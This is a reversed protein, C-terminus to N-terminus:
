AKKDECVAAVLQPVIKQVDGKVLFDKGGLYRPRGLDIAVIVGQPNHKKYWGLFGRDDRSMGCCIIVGIEQAWENRVEKKFKNGVIFYPTIGTKQHLNDLNETVLACKKYRALALLGTHAVTPSSNHMSKCFKEFALLAPQPDQILKEAILPDQLGLVELLDKMVLVGAASSIGAGTYLVVKKTKILEALAEPQIDQANENDQPEFRDGVYYCDNEGPQGNGSAKTVSGFVCEYNLGRSDHSELKKFLSKKEEDLNGPLEKLECQVYVGSTANYGFTYDGSKGMFCMTIPKQKVEMTELKPPEQLFFNMGVVSSTACFLFGFWVLILSKKINM